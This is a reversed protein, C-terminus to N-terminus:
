RAGAVRAIDALVANRVRFIDGEDRDYALAKIPVRTVLRTVFEFQRALRAPEDAGHSATGALIRPLALAPSLRRIHPQRDPRHGGDEDILYIAALPAPRRAAQQRDLPLIIKDTAPNMPVGMCSGGFIRNAIARYLKIRPPGPHALFADGEATLILMDDTLLPCGGHVFLAGLTSKGRGSAGIFAAVGRDTLVATAHLPERGLRVMAYSLADVLLYAQFAEENASLARASIHRGDPSVLFELLNAWRRYRSGDPLAAYQAWHGQQDPPISRSAASFTDSDGEVFEVDWPGPTRGAVGRVPWPTRLSIGYLEQVVPGFRPEPASRERTM